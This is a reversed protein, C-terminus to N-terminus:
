EAPPLPSDTTLARIGFYLYALTIVIGIPWRIYWSPEWPGFWLLTRFLIVPTMAVFALRVSARYDLTAGAQSALLMGIGGYVLGQLTRMGLSGALCIVYGIVPLWNKLGSFFSQVDTADVKMDVAPTLAWTRREGRSPRIMGFERRTLVIAEAGDVEQPVNDITDDIIVLTENTAGKSEPDRLVHRGPPDVRMIGNEITVAPIQQAIATGENLAFRQLGVYWRAASPLWCLALLLMLYLLGIGKWKTAVDRYAGASYLSLPITKFRAPLNM